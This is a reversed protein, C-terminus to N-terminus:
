GRQADDQDGQLVFFIVRNGYAALRIITLCGSVEPSTIRKPHTKVALIAKQYSLVRYKDNLIQYVDVMEQLKDIIDKNFSATQDKSSKSCIYLDPNVGCAHKIVTEPDSGVQSHTSRFSDDSSERAEAKTRKQAKEVRADDNTSPRKSCSKCTSDDTPKCYEYPRTDLCTDNKLCDSLWSSKVVKLREHPVALVTKNGIAKFVNSWGSFALEDVLVLFEVDGEPVPKKEDFVHAKNKALATKFLEVRHRGMGNPLVYIQASFSGFM